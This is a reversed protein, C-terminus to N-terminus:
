VGSPIKGFIHYYSFNYLIIKQNGETIAINHM